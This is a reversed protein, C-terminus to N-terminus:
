GAAARDAFIVLNGAPNIRGAPIEKDGAVLRKLMERKDTGAVFFAVNRSANLTPYTLTVRPDDSGLKAVSVWHETVNLVPDGPFLSATHGDLGLGLLVVDLPKETGLFAKLHMEYAAAAATADAMDTPIPHVHDAPAKALLTEHAMRYNSRADDLPVFREDGFFWHARNWDFGSHAAIKKYTAIPTSGGALSVTFEGSSAAALDFFWQAAREALAEPDPLIELKATM